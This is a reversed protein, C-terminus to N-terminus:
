SFVIAGALGDGRGWVCRRRCFLIRTHLGADTRRLARVCVRVCARLCLCTSVYVYLCVTCVCVYMLSDLRKGVDHGEQALRDYITYQAGKAIFRKKAISFPCLCVFVCVCVCARAGYFSLTPTEVEYTDKSWTAIHLYHHVCARICTFM